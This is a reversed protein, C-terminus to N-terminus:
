SVSPLSDGQDYWDLGWMISPSKDKVHIICAVVQVGHDTTNSIKTQQEHKHMNKDLNSEKNSRPPGYKKETCMYYINKLNNIFFYKNDTEHLNYVYLFLGGLTRCLDLVSM